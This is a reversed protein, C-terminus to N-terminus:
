YSLFSLRESLTGRWVILKGLQPAARQEVVMLMLSVPSCELKSKLIAADVMWCMFSDLAAVRSLNCYGLLIM